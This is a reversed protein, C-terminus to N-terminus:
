HGGLRAEAQAMCAAWIALLQLVGQQQAALSSCHAADCSKAQDKTDHGVHLSAVQLESPAPMQDPLAPAPAPCAADVCAESCPVVCCGRVTWENKKGFRQGQELGFGLRFDTSSPM